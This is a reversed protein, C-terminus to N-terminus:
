REVVSLAFRDSVAASEDPYVAVVDKVIDVRLDSTQQWVVGARVM